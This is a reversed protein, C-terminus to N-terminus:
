CNPLTYQVTNSFYGGMEADGTVNMDTPHLKAQNLDSYKFSTKSSAFSCCNLGSNNAASLRYPGEMYTDLQMAPHHCITVRIGYRDM